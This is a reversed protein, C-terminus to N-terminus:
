KNQCIIMQTSQKRNSIEHKVIKFHSGIYEGFEEFNWERMHTKNKPPGFHRRYRRKWERYMLDRDPTSIVYYQCKISKLFELLEDPSVLHEIVDSCIVVDTEYKGRISFDSAEWKHDPYEKRLWELTEPLELGLTEYEKFYQILKYGSGCGVDIVSEFGNSKMLELAALYVERQWKDTNSTDDFHRYAKRHRYFSKIHYRKSM